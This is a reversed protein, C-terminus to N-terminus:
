HKMVLQFLVRLLFALLFSPLIYLHIYSKRLCLSCLSFIFFTQFDSM